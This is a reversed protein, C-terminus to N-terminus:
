AVVSAAIGAMAADVMFGGGRAVADLAAAAAVLGTLPDALADGIFRPAGGATWRVLGGAAAADDGFAVRNTQSGTWGYGSIAVWILAPNLAFLREPALDGKDFVRRRASSIIVDAGHLLARLEPGRFDLAVREKGGNLRVDFAPASTATTDPRTISEVKVVDAGMAAFVSGCLPGAWLSSLDVVRLRHRNPVGGAAMKRILNTASFAEGVRAVPLGLLAGQEILDEVGQEVARRGALWAPMLESDSERALNLALWGNAARIMRASNNASRVGPKGLSVAESRDFVASPDMKVANGITASRVAIEDVWRTAASLARKM